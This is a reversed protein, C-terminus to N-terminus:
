ANLVELANDLDVLKTFLSELASQCIKEPPMAGTSEVTMYFTDATGDPDYDAEHKDDDTLQSYESRPWMEPHEYFTHRLANDPDYEYAVAATPIWKAHEKGVGKRAYCTLKLEQGQRIKCIVIHNGQISQDRREAATAVPVVSTDPGDLTSRLHETTVEMQHADRCAVHLELKVVCNPCGADCTCDRMYNFHAARESTLPILGLRHAIFEDHLVTTNIEIHVDDIALTPVEAIMSRRFSNALATDANSLQLKIESDTLSMIRVQPDRNFSAM